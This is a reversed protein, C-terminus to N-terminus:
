IPATFLTRTRFSESKTEM